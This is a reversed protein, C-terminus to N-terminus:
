EARVLSLRVGIYGFRASPPAGGRFASRCREAEENWSGGRLARFSGVDVGSADTVAGSPHDSVLNLCWEAVNGHMDKLGWANAPYSGVEKTQNGGVEKTQNGDFNAQQQTLMDGFHYATTTGARCAYEWQAETPLSFKFGAGPTGALYEPTGALHANLKAIYEQCDDWSVQEVPLKAGVFYSPNNGMVSARMAQTVGEEVPLEERVFYSPNNGMVSEWMVQTVETELMWFGRTLTVQHQTERDVRGVESTPSGMTFTGPPCWHFAYEVDKIKLVMRDGAKPNGFREKIKDAYGQIQRKYAPDADRIAWKFYRHEDIPLSHDALQAEKPVKLEACLKGIYAPAYKSDVKLVEDFYSDARQWDSDELYRLGLDM